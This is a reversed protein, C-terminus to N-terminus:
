RPPANTTTKPQPPVVRASGDSGIEVNLESGSKPTQVAASAPKKMLLESGKRDDSPFIGKRIWELKRSLALEEKLKKVQERLVVLDNFKKELDAKETMLRKLEGELFAKDGEASALKRKVEAVQGNLATLANTLETARRDLNMNQSELDAIRADRRAIEAENAKKAADFEARAKALDDTTRSLDGSTKALDNSFTQITATRQAVDKELNSIVGRADDLKVTADKLSNSFSLITAGDQKQRTDANKNRVIITAILAVALAILVIYGAAQKM